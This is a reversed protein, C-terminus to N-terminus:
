LMVVAQLYLVGDGYYPLEGPQLEPYSIIGNVPSADHNPYVPLLAPRIEILIIDDRAFM